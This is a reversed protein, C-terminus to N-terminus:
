RAAAALDLADFLCDRAGDFFTDYRDSPVHGVGDLSDLRVAVGAARLAAATDVSWQHPIWPDATGSFLCGAADGADIGTTTPLGGSVSVFARVRGEPNPASTGVGAATMGGASEGAIAIRAPDVGYNAANDRLWRVALSADEVAAVLAARCEESEAHEEICQETALARYDISVALYGLRAFDGPFAILPGETRAGDAFGGGHVWILAPRATMADGKPAYVDLVHEPATGYAVGSTVEVESFVSERYRAPDDPSSSTPM